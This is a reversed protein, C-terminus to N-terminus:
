SLSATRGVPHCNPVDFDAAHSVTKKQKTNM